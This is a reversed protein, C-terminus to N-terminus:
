VRISLSMTPVIDNEVRWEGIRGYDTRVVISELVRGVKYQLPLLVYTRVAYLSCQRRGCSRGWVGRASGRGPLGSRKWALVVFRPQDLIQNCISLFVHGTERM